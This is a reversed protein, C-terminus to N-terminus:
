SINRKRRRLIIVILSVPLGECSLVLGNLHEPKHNESHLVRTEPGCFDSFIQFLLLDRGEAAYFRGDDKLSETNQDLEELSADISVNFLLKESNIQDTFGSSEM